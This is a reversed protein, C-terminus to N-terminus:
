PADTGRLPGMIVPSPLPFRDKPALLVANSPTCNNTLSSLRLPSRQNRPIRCVPSIAPQLHRGGHAPACFADGLM